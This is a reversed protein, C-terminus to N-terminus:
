EDLLAQEFEGVLNYKRFLKGAVSIQYRYTEMKQFIYRVTNGRYVKAGGLRGAEEELQKCRKRLDLIEANLEALMRKKLNHNVKSM